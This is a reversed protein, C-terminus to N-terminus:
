LSLDGKTKPEAPPKSTFVSSQIKPEQGIVRVLEARELIDDLIIVSLPHHEIIELIAKKALHSSLTEKLTM